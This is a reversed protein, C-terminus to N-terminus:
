FIIKIFQNITDMFVFVLYLGTILFPGFPIERNKNTLVSYIAYPFALFSGLILSIISLRLGLLFGFFVALKVDGGGLSEEKFIKDGIFKIIMMFIFILLGSCVSIIFTEFGFFLLKLLLVITSSIILPKDLIIFYKLDSIFINVLLMTLIIMIIMEYSFGYIIYSFSFLLGSLLELAPFLLSIKNHCYNCKGRMLFYSILPLLEHWEYSTNCNICYGAKIKNKLIGKLGYMASIMGIFLGAIFLISIIYIDILM